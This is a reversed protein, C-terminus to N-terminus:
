DVGRREGCDHHALGVIRTAKFREEGVLALIGDEDPRTNTHAQARFRHHKCSEVGISGDHEVGIRDRTEGVVSGRQKSGNALACRGDHERRMLPLKGPQEARYSAGFEDAREPAVIRSFPASVTTAEGPPSADILAVVLGQSAVAPVPSTRAPM